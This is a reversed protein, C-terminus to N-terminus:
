QAIPPALAEASSESSAAAASAAPIVRWARGQRALVGDQELRELVRTAKAKGMGFARMLHAQSAQRHDRVWRSAERVDNEDLSAPDRGAGPRVDRDPIYAGFADIWFHPQGMARLADTVREVEAESVFPGQLRTMRNGGGGPSYLLDGHGRLAEAGYTDLITRSDYKSSVQFAVRSPFNAKILGTIVDVSPRQTAVILHMGVARAMQALRVLPEEVETRLELMLDALEDIIIVVHPMYAPRPQDSRPPKRRGVAIENFAGIARARYAQLRRYRDQMLELLWALAGAAEDAESVIPAALHPIDQYVSLEVRKPDIMVLRLMDPSMHYLLSTILGHLFVSKGAGTAGAVLLHPLRPLSELRPTDDTALGLALRLPQPDDKFAATDLIDRLVVPAPKLNPIELGVAAKGPIPALVRLRERGLALSLDTELSMLRAVKVGRGLRMEVLTVVRGQMVEVVEAEVGYDHLAQQVKAALDALEAETAHHLQDPAPPDALLTLAPPRYNAFYGAPPPEEIASWATEEDTGIARAAPASESEWRGMANLAVVKAATAPLPAPLEISPSASPAASPVAPPPGLAIPQEDVAADLAALTPAHDLAADEIPADLAFAADLPVDAGWPEMTESRAPDDFAKAVDGPAVSSLLLKLPDAPDIETSPSPKPLPPAPPMPPLPTSKARLDGAVRQEVHESLAQFAAGLPDRDREREEAVLPPAVPAVVPAGPKELRYVSSSTRAPLNLGSTPPIVPVAGFSPRSARPPPLQRMEGSPMRPARLAVEDRKPEPQTLGFWHVGSEPDKTLSVGGSGAGKRKAKLWLEVARGLVWQRAPHIATVLGVIGLAALLISTGTEGLRWTLDLARQDILLSGTLGGAEVSRNALYEDNAFPMAAWGSVAFIVSAIGCARLVLYPWPRARQADWAVCGLGIALVWAGGPGVMFTTISWATALGPASDIWGQWALLAALGLVGALAGGAIATAQVWWPRRDARRMSSM